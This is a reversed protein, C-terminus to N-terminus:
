TEIRGNLAVKLVVSPPLRNMAPASWPAAGGQCTPIASGAVEAAGARQLERVFRMSQARM